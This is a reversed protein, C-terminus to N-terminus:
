ALLRMGSPILSMLFIPKVSINECAESLLVKMRSISFDSIGKTCCYLFASFSLSAILSWLQSLEPVSKWSSSKQHSQGSITLQQLHKEQYKIEKNSDILLRYDDFHCSSETHYAEIDNIHSM